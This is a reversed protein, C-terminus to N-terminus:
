TAERTNPFSQGLLQLIGTEPARYDIGRMVELQTALVLQFDTTDDAKKGLGRMADDLNELAIDSLDKDDADTFM